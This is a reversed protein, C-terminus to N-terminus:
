KSAVKARLKKILEKFSSREIISNFQTRYNNILSVGQISVDYVFWDNNKKIMRYAVPIDAGEKTMIKVRVLAYNGQIREGEYNVKEGSYAEVRDIYTQELLNEFLKMFEEREAATRGRWHIALTRRSMEERDFIEDVAARILKEREKQKEPGKLEPSSVIGVIKDTTKKITEMPDGAFANLSFGVIFILCLIGYFVMKRHM